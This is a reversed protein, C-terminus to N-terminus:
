GVEMKVPKCKIYDLSVLRYETGGVMGQVGSKFGEEGHLHGYFVRKVGFEAFLETFGSEQLKDNMPPFHLIGVIKAFGADRAATLSSRLRILERKYIKEDQATYGEDGPCLWGRSGCIAWGEVECFDNQLFRMDRGFMSNLKKISSWWLDHNGRVFVKNGPLSRIWDLDAVAEELKLAWSVDGAIIVTDDEAIASEWNKKVNEAHNLWEGGFIDMPKQVKESFSLHLDAIVFISM